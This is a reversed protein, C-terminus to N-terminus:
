LLRKLDKYKWISGLNPSIIQLNKLNATSLNGGAIELVDNINYLGALLYNGPNSIEGEVKVLLSSVLSDISGSSPLDSSYNELSIEPNITAKKPALNVVLEEIEAKSYFRIKDGAM